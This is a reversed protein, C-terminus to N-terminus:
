KTMHHSLEVKKKLPHKVCFELHALILRKCNLLKLCGPAKLWGHHEFLRIASWHCWEWHQSCWVSLFIEFNSEGTQMMDPKKKCKGGGWIWAALYRRVQRVPAARKTHCALDSPQQFIWGGTDAQAYCSLAVAGWFCRHSYKVIVLLLGLSVDMNWGSRKMSRSIRTLLKNQIRFFLM